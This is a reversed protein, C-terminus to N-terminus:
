SSGVLPKKGFLLAVVLAAIGAIAAGARFSAPRYALEVDHRGPPLTVSMPEGPVAAFPSEAGDVRARWGPFFPDAVVLTGDAEARVAIRWLGPARALLRFEGGTGQLRVRPRV